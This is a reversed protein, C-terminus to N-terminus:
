RDSRHDGASRCRHDPHPTAAPRRSHYLWGEGRPKPNIVTLRFHKATTEPIDVTIQELNSSPVRIVETWTTGDQSCLLTNDYTRDPDFQGQVQGGVLTFSRITVAKPFNYQIWAHTGEKNLALEPGDNIDGNTLQEVTFDGGSSTVTAGLEQMKKETEPVRVAVVAIDQYWQSMKEFVPAYIGASVNQFRGITKYPEPLTLTQSKGNGKVELTRWTLKKMADAPEVWPGGTSSWGPASAIGVEMGLSDALHIAYAFNEKWADSLYPTQPVVPPLGQMMAGGADFQHFGAIGIRNMWELDKRIGDKSTNGNIWHWWVYPRAEKPPNAFRQDQASATVCLFACVVIM